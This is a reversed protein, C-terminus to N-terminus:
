AEERGLYNLCIMYIESSQKRSALPKALYVKIFLRKVERYLPKFMEGEFAKLIASGGSALIHPLYSVVVSTLDIQRTSDLEWIGSVKPSLDSLVVDAKHNIERLILHVINPQNADAVITKTNTSPPLVQSLDIGLVMGGDGVKESAVQLWGGPACGFDVVLQGPQILSYKDAIEKLKFAARSRYGERKALRRYVDRKADHLKM